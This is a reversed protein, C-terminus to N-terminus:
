SSSGCRRETLSGDFHAEVEHWDQTAFYRDKTRHLGYTLMVEPEWDV